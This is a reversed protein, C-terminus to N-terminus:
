LVAVNLVTVIPKPAIVKVEPGIEISRHVLVHDVYSYPAYFYTPPVYVHANEIFTEPYPAYPNIHRVPYCYCHYPHTWGYVPRYKIVHVVVPKYYLIHWHPTYYCHCDILSHAAAPRPALSSAGALALLFLLRKM